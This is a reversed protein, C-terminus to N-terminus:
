FGSGFLEERGPSRGAYDKKLVSTTALAASDGIVCGRVGFDVLGCYVVFVCGPVNLSM